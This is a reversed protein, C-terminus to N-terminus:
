ARVNPTDLKRIPNTTEDSDINRSEVIGTDLQSMFNTPGRSNAMAPQTSIANVVNMIPIADDYQPIRSHRPSLPKPEANYPTLEIASSKAAAGGESRPRELAIAPPPKTKPPIAPGASPPRTADM